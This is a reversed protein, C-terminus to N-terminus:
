SRRSWWVAFGLLLVAAPMLVIVRFLLGDLDGATMQIAMADVKRAGISIMAKRETLWGTWGSALDANSSQPMQLFEPRLWDSDGVVVVRGKRDRGSPAAEGEEEGGLDIAVALPVPGEIDEADPALEAGTDLAALNTEAYAEDSTQMLMQAGSGEIPAVSRVMSMVTRGGQDSGPDGMAAVPETSEHEGYRTVLFAEIPSPGLQRDEDLELVLSRDVRAGLDRLMRELGTPEISNGEMVPDLTVLLRGGDNVYDGLLSAEEDSFAKVPGVVYVADCREPVSEAGLTDLAEMEVNDRRLEEELAHLSREGGELSWEGHGQTVCVQTAEGHTVEVVAGTIAQEVKVDRKPGGESEFSGFDFGVLDDRKIRWHEDGSSVVAAVDATVAGSELVAARLGFKRLLREYEGQQRDPDVFHTEIQRSEAEYRQLIEEVDAFTPEARSLFVHIDVPKSLEALEKQTRDSLTFLGQSTWDWRDYHRFALYNVMGVIGLLLLAQAAIHLMNRSRASRGSATKPEARAM